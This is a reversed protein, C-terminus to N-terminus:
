LIVFFCYIAVVVLSLLVGVMAGMLLARGAEARVKPLITTTLKENIRKKIKPFLGMLRMRAKDKLKELLSGKLFTAAMPIEQQFTLVLQDLEEELLSSAEHESLIHDVARPLRRTGLLIPLYAATAGIFAGVLPLLYIPFM